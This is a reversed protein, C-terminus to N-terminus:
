QLSHSNNRMKLLPSRLGTQWYANTKSQVLAYIIRDLHHHSYPHWASIAIHFAHNEGLNHKMKKIEFICEM